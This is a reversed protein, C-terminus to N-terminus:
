ENNNTNEKKKDHPKDVFNENEINSVEEQVNSIYRKISGIWSGMKKLVIPFDKPGIVVIAVVVIILLEFWGIQPM